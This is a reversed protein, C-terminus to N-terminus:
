RWQVIQLPPAVESITGSAVLRRHGALELWPLDRLDDTFAFSGAWDIPQGAFHELTAARKDTGLMERGVIGAPGTRCCLCTDFRFEACFPQVLFDFGGTVLVLRHGAARLREVERLADARLRPRIERTYITRGLEEIQARNLDGLAALVGDKFRRSGALRLKRILSWYLIRAARGDPQRLQQLMLLHLSNGACLTGDFDFMALRQGASM